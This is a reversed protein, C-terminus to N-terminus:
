QRTNTHEETIALFLGVDKDSCKNKGGEMVAFILGADM